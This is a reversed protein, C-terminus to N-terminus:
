LHFIGGHLLQQHSITIQNFKKDNMIKSQAHLNKCFSPEKIILLKRNLNNLDTILTDFFLFIPRLQLMRFFMIESFYIHGYFWTVIFSNIYKRIPEQEDKNKNVSKSCSLILVIFLFICYKEEHLSIM